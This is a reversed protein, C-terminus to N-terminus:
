LIQYAELSSLHFGWTFWEFDTTMKEKKKKKKKKM